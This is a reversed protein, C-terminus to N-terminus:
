DSFIQSRHMYVFFPVYYFYITALTTTTVTLSRSVDEIFRTGTQRPKGPIITYFTQKNNNDLEQAQGLSSPAAAVFVYKQQGATLHSTCWSCWKDVLEGVQM